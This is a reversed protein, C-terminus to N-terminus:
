ASVSLVKIARREAQIKHYLRLYDHAMRSATFRQEFLRRCEERRIDKLRRVSDLASDVGECIFGNLGHVIIEPVSGQHFAIVPTGMAMAEIMVLGFPEPWSIPFLLARAKGILDQKASEGVEGLYEIFPQKLLGEIDREFYDRDVPDVKAAIKLPLGARCAIQIASDLGKEPCIRGVFVLYDDSKDEFRYLSEPLGHYVNGVWNAMALPARQAHSISVVAQESFENFVPVLEPLDLRGHMTTLAPLQLLRFQSFPLYDIHSHIIDYQRARRLVEEMMIIHPALGDRSRGDQRLARQCSAVLRASTKSDGSAFLEVDARQRVLEETLWHVVRETGGYGTPPVAEYLPAIQAVKM